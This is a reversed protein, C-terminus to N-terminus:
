NGPLINAFLSPRPFDAAPHALELDPLSLDTPSLHFIRPNPTVTRGVIQLFNLRQMKYFRQGDHMYDNFIPLIGALVFARFVSEPVMPLYQKVVDLNGIARMATLFTQDETVNPPPKLYADEIRKFSAVVPAPVEFFIALDEPNLLNTWISSAIEWKYKRVLISLARLHDQGLAFLCCKEIKEAIQKEEDWESAIEPDPTFDMGEDLEDFVKNWTNFLAERVILKHYPVEPRTSKDMVVKMMIFIPIKGIEVRSSSMSIRHRHTKLFDQLRTMVPSQEDPDCFTLLKQQTKYPVADEWKLSNAKLFAQIEKTTEAFLQRMAFYGLSYLLENMLNSKTISLFLTEETLGMATLLKKPVGSCSLDEMMMIVSESLIRAQFHSCAHVFVVSDKARTHALVQFAGMMSVLKKTIDQRYEDIGDVQWVLTIKELTADRAVVDRFHAFKDLMIEFLRVFGKKTASVLKQEDDHSLQELFWIFPNAALQVANIKVDAGSRALEPHKAQMYDAVVKNAEPFPNDGDRAEWILTQDEELIEMQPQHVAERGRKRPNQLAPFEQTLGGLLNESDARMKACKQNDIVRLLLLDTSCVSVLDERKVNCKCFPLIMKITDGNKRAKAAMGYNGWIKAAGPCGKEGMSHKFLDRVLNRFFLKKQESDPANRIQRLYAVAAAAGTFIEPDFGLAGRVAYVGAGENIEEPSTEGFYFYLEEFVINDGDVRYPRFAVTPHSFQFVGNTKTCRALSVYAIRYGDKRFLDILANPFQRKIDEKSSTSTLSENYDSMIDAFAKSPLGRLLHDRKFKNTDMQIVVPKAAYLSEEAGAVARAYRAGQAYDHDREDDGM